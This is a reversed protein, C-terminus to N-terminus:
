SIFMLLNVMRGFKVILLVLNMIYKHISTYILLFDENFIQKLLKLIGFDEVGMWRFLLRNNKKDYDDIVDLIFNGDGDFSEWEAGGYNNFDEIVDNIDSNELHKFLETLTINSKFGCIENVISNKNIKM